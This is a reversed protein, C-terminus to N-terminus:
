LEYRAVVLPGAICGAGGSDDCGIIYNFGRDRLDTELELLSELTQQKKKQRKIPTVRRKSMMMYTPLWRQRSEARQNFGCIIVPLAMLLLVAPNMALM